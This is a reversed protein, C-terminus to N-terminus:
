NQSTNNRIQKDTPITITIKITIKDNSDFVEDNIQEEDDNNKKIM